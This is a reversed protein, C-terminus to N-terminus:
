RNNNDSILKTQLKIELCSSAPKRSTTCSFCATLELLGTMILDCQPSVCIKIIAKLDKQQVIKIRLVPVPTALYITCIHSISTSSCLRFTQNTEMDESPTIVGACEEELFFFM